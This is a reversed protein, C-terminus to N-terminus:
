HCIFYKYTTFCCHYLESSFCQCEFCIRCIVYSSHAFIQTLNYKVKHFLGYISLYVKSPNFLLENEQLDQQILNFKASIGKYALSYFTIKSSVWSIGIFDPFIKNVYRAIISILPIDILDYVDM